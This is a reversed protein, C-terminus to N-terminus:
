VTFFSTSIEQEEPNIKSVRTAYYIITHALATTKLISSFQHFTPQNKKGRTKIATHAIPEAPSASSPDHLAQYSSRRLSGHKELETGGLM